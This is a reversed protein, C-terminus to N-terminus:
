SLVDSIEIHIQYFNLIEESSFKTKVDVEREQSFRVSIRCMKRRNVSFLLCKQANSRFAARFHVEVCNKCKPKVFHKLEHISLTATRKRFLSRGCGRFLRFTRRMRGDHPPDAEICIQVFPKM